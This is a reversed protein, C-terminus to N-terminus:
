LYMIGYPELFIVQVCHVSLHIINVLTVSYGRNWEFFPLPCLSALYLQCLKFFIYVEEKKKLLPCIERSEDALCVERTAYGSVM